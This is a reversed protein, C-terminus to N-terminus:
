TARLMIRPVGTATLVAGATFPTPLAGYAQAVSMGGYYATDTGSTAGLWGFMSSGQYTRLTPTSDSVAALWYWGRALTQNINIEKGGTSAGSVNGADLILNGPVGASDEYIGLQINSPAARTTVHVAIRDYAHSENVYFLMAYMTADVLALTRTNYAATILPCGYYRGSVQPPQLRVEEGINQTIHWGDSVDELGATARLLVTPITAAFYTVPGGFPDPLAGYAVDIYVGNNVDTGINTAVGLLSVTATNLGTVVPADDSICALWYWGAPLWRTLALSAEKVTAGSVVGADILLAGPVGGSDAYIGLRISSLPDATTVNVALAQCVATVPVCIPLAYLRGATFTAGATGLQSSPVHWRDGRFAPWIGGARRQPVLRLALKKTTKWM